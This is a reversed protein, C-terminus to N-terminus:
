GASGGDAVRGHDTVDVLRAVAEGVQVNCDPEGEHLLTAAGAPLMLVVTSGLHFAGLEAGRDLAVPVDFRVQHARRARRLHRSELGAALLSINGVGSAAVLAMGVPGQATEIELVLRENAAYLQDISRFRRSVPMLRGPIYQYGVLRGAVPSHVRHYDRPSLYFTMFAGGALAGALRRDAVFTDLSYGRGKAQILQNSRIPGCTSIRGDCPAVVAAPDGAVPRAGVRLRRAFLAGLSPYDALPLEAEDLRAGICRGLAQYVPARVPRPLRRRSLWGVAESYWGLPARRVLGVTIREV